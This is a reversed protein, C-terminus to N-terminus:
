EAAVSARPMRLLGPTLCEVVPVGAPFRRGYAARGPFGIVTIGAAMAAEASEPTDEVALVNQPQLGFHDLALKYCDPAPKPHLVDEGSGIYDFSNERVDSRVIGFTINIQRPATTSVLACKAKSAKAAAILDSVGPRARLRASKALTEFAGQKVAYVAGPDVLDSEGRAQAFADIRGRGSPQQLLRAYTDWDWDWGLGFRDFAYNFAKRQLESTDALVGISGLFLADYNM